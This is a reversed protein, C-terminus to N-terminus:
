PIVIVSHFKKWCVWSKICSMNDLLRPYHAYTFVTLMHLSQAYRFMTPMDLFLPCILVCHAYRFVTPMYLCMPGIYFRHAYISVTPMYLITPMYLVILMYLFLMCNKNQKCNCPRLLIKLYIQSWLLLTRFSVNANLSHLQSLCITDCELYNWLKSCVYSMVSVQVLALLLACLTTEPDNPQSLGLCHLACQTFWWSCTSSYCATLLSCCCCHIRVQRNYPFSHLLM